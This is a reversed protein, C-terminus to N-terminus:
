RFFLLTVVIFVPVLIAGSWLMFGFFGPMDVRARRALAYVMFNPANGVYTLAGMFVAGTSIAALTKALPGMLAAAHGGAIAFFVLYTPGNDLISSLLGSAWFYAADNPTGDRHALLAIVSAFPGHSPAALMSMVPVITVFIAAFLKAVEEFPEWSFHNASHDAKPTIALSALGIIGLAVDRLINQLELKAGLVDFTVGPHWVASILIAGIAAGILAVNPLGRMALHLAGDAVADSQSHPERHAFWDDILYFTVLVLAATILLHPWLTRLPWFFDVGALFGFFLPPNGLPTLIGGINAVLFIFFIVVHAKHHRKANAQLLPRILIMSAATAGILGAAITGIALLLTNLGPTARDFDSVVIGGATAYLAFLMLIFPLYDELIVAALASRTAAFGNAEIMLGLALLAWIAAAWGYHLHWLRRALIPGLAISLLLGAFPLALWLSPAVESL